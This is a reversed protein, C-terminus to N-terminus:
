QALMLVTLENALVTGGSMVSFATGGSHTTQNDDQSGNATPHYRM